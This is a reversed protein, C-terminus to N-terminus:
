TPSKTPSVIRVTRPKATEKGIKRLLHMISNPNLEENEDADRVVNRDKLNAVEYALRIQSEHFDSNMYEDMEELHPRFYDYRKLRNLADQAKERELRYRNSRGPKPRIRKNKDMLFLVTSYMESLEGVTIDEEVATDHSRVLLEADRFPDPDPTGDSRIGYYDESINRGGTIVASKAEFSGDKVLMKDHSRRNPNGLKTIANFIVVQVRALRTTLEGAQNRMFGADNACTELARLAPHTMGSISGISDITVRVDVGRQVANCLAGLMAYGVLDTQFIYYTFDLTHEANEIMWLKVALSDIAGHPSPGIFKTRASQIPVKADRSLEVLDLGHEKPPLWRRAEYIRNIEADDVASLPPCGPLDQTGAPCAEQRPTTSCASLLLAAVLALIFHVKQM